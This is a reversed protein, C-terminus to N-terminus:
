TKSNFFGVSNVQINSFMEWTIGRAATTSLSRIEKQFVYLLIVPIIPWHQQLHPPRVTSSLAPVQSLGGALSHSSLIGKLVHRSPMDQTVSCM